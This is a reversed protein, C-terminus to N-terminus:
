TTSGQACIIQEFGAERAGSIRDRLARHSSAARKVGQVDLDEILSRKM